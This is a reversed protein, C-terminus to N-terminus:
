TESGDCTEKHVVHLMNDKRLRFPVLCHGDRDKINPWVHTAFSNFTCKVTWHLMRERTNPFNGDKLMADM